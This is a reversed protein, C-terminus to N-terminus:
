SRTLVLDIDGTDSCNNVRGEAFMLLTGDDAQVVTPIRFCSYGLTGAKLVSQEEFMAVGAGSAAGETPTLGPAATVTSAGFLVTWAVISASLGGFTLQKKTLQAM